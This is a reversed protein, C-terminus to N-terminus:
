LKIEEKIYEKLLEVARGGKLCEHDGFVFFFDKARSVAVNLLNVNSSIFKAGGDDRGYVTSFIVMPSEAGQFTHVTGVQIDNLNKKRLNRKILEVQSKFPTIICIIDKLTKKDKPVRGKNYCSELTNKNISIWEAIKEAEKDNERSSGKQRSKSTYIHYYGMSPLKKLLNGWKNEADKKRSPKRCPELDGDYVLANCFQIIEDYCRRHECLFLGRRKDSKDFPCANIAVSMLSSESCNLGNEQLADFESYEKIVGNIKSLSVDMNHLIKYVPPIQKEDGVVIAKKALAFSALGVEPSVQGAEDVVLLDMFNTLFPESDKSPYASFCGPMKYFTMVFCPTLLSMRKYNKQIVNSYTTKKQNDTLFFEKDKDADFLWIYEYYHVALWFMRSRIKTDILRNVDQLTMSKFKDLDIDIKEALDKINKKIQYLIKYQSILKFYFKSLWNCNDRKVCFDILRDKLKNLNELESLISHQNVHSSNFYKQFSNSFRQKSKEKNDSSQIDKWHWEAKQTSCLYEDKILAPMYTALSEHGSMEVWRSQLVDANEIEDTNEIKFADIVNMIAKNNTSAIGIIPPNKKRLLAAEVVLSAVVSKLLATKGTGPPGSVAIVEGDRTPSNKQLHHIVERQSPSLPFKNDMQGFHRKMCEPSDISYSHAQHTTCGSLMQQYLPFTIVNKSDIHDYLDIIKGSANVERDPIIYIENSLTYSQDKDICKLEKTDWSINLKKQYLSVLKQIYSRWNDQDNLIIRQDRASESSLNCDPLNYEDFIDWPIWPKNNEPPLLQGSKTLRAPVYLIGTIPWCTKGDVKPGDFLAKPIILVDVVGEKKDSGNVMQSFLDKSINGGQEFQEKSIIGYDEKTFDVFSKVELAERFYSTIRSKNM